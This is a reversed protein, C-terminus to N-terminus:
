ICSSTKGKSEKLGRALDEITTAEFRKAADEGVQQWFSRVMNDVPEDTKIGPAPCICFEPDIADIIRKVNIKSPADKFHFGGSVGGRVSELLGAHKLKNLLQAVFPFSINQRRAIDNSTITAGEGQMAIDTMIVIAYHVKAPIKMSLIEKQDYGFFEQSSERLIFYIYIIPKYIVYKKINTL